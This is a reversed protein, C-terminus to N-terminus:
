IRYLVCGQCLSSPRPAGDDEDRRSPTGDANTDVDMSDDLDGGGGGGLADGEDAADAEAEAADAVARTKWLARFEVNTM